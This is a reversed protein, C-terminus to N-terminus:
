EALLATSVGVRIVAFPRNNILVPRQVVYNHERWLDRMLQFPLPLQAAGRLVDISPVDAPVPAGQHEKIIGEGNAGDIGIFVIGTGFASVSQIFSHLRSDTRLATIPDKPAGSLATRVQEFIEATVVNGSDIIEDAIRALNWSLDILSAGLVAATLLVVFAGALKIRLSM